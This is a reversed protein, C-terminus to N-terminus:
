YKLTKFTALKKGYPFLFLSLPLVFSPDLSDYEKIIIEVGIENFLFFFM